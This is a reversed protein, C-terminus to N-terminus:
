RNNNNSWSDNITTETINKLIYNNNVKVFEAEYAASDPYMNETYAGKLENANTLYIKLTVILKDSTENYNAVSHSYSGAPAGGGCLDLRVYYDTGDINHKEYTYSLEIKDVNPMEENFLEKYKTKVDNVPILQKTLPECNNIGYKSTLKNLGITKTKASDVNLIAIHVKAENNFSDLINKIAKKGYDDQYQKFYKDTIKTVEDPGIKNTQTNDNQAQDDSPTQDDAKPQETEQEGDAKPQETEQKDDVKQGSNTSPAPKEKIYNDYVLYGICALLLIIIVILIPNNSKKNKPEVTPQEIKPEDVPNEPVSVVPTSEVPQVPESVTPNVPTVNPTMNTETSVQNETVNNIPQNNQENNEM